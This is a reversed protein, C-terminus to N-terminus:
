INISQFFLVCIILTIVILKVILKIIDMTISFIKYGTYLGIVPLITAWSVQEILQMTLWITLGLMGLMGILRFFAITGNSRKEM